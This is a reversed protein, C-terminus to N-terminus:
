ICSIKISRFLSNATVNFTVLFMSTINEHYRSINKSKNACTWIRINNRVLKKEQREGVGSGVRIREPNKCGGEEEKREARKQRENAGGGISGWKGSNSSSYIEM